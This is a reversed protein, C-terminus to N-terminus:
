AKDEEVSVGFKALACENDYLRQHLIDTLFLVLEANMDSIASYGITLHFGGSSVSELQDLIFKREKELNSVYKLDKLKM